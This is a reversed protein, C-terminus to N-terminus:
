HKPKPVPAPTGLAKILGRIPGYMRQARRGPTIRAMHEELVARFTGKELVGQEELHRVLLEQALVTGAILDAYQDPM